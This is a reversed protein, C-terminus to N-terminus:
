ERECNEGNGAYGDPCAGCVYGAPYDSMLSFPVYICTVAPFTLIVVFHNYCLTLNLWYLLYNNLKLAPHMFKRKGDYGVPEVAPFTLNCFTLCTM